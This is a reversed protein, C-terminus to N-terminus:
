SINTGNGRFPRLSKYCVSISGKGIPQGAKLCLLANAGPCIPHKCRAHPTNAHPMPSNAELTLPAPSPSPAGMIVPLHVGTLQWSQAVKTGLQSDESIGQNELTKQTDCLLVQVM